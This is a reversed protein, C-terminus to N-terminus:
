KIKLRPVRDLKDFDKQVIAKDFKYNAVVGIMAANDTCYKKFSPFLVNIKNEKAYNRILLRLRQNATVGGVVVLNNVKYQDNAKKIKLLITEFVAEQYSSALYNLNKIQNKDSTKKLLYFMSTKLGSFSFNLDKSKIMPRPFKYIDKNEVKKALKEIIEGGPYGLGLMKAAKDLAEGAADDLTEGLMEYKNHDKWLIIETHGGSVIVALYPFNFKIDPNGNKNQIFASYIHGEMHNIPIIKKNFKKAIEKAKNIGVELAIALGPGYTVAIYDIINIV